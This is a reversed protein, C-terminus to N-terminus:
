ANADRAIPLGMRIAADVDVVTMHRVGFLRTRGASRRNLEDKVALLLPKRPAPTDILFVLKINAEGPYTRVPDPLLAALEQGQHTGVWAAALLLLVDSAKDRLTEILQSHAVRAFSDLGDWVGEGKLELLFLRQSARDWWGFDMEKLSLGSLKRYPELDAFRFSHERDLTVRIGSESVMRPPNTNMM